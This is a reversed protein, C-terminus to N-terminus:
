RKFARMGSNFDPMPEKALLNVIKKLISKGIIRSKDCYSDETRVGICYDLDEKEMKNIVALLDEPRHQGDADYWAIINGKAHRCGTAIASGYGRNKRHRICRLNTYEKTLQNVIEYTDDQGGDEIVLIEIDETIQDELEVLTDRIGMAENYAPIIVSVKVM